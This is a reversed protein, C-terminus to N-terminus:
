RQPVDRSFRLSGPFPAALVDLAGVLTVLLIWATLVLWADFGAASLAVVPVVGLAVLLPFRGTLFLTAGLPARPDPAAGLHSHRRRHRGRGRCRCTAARPAAVRPHDDGARSGTHDGPIRRAMGVGQVR